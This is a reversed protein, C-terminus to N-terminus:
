KKKLQFYFKYEKSTCLICKPNTIKVRIELEGIDKKRFIDKYNKKIIKPISNINLIDEKVLVNITLRNIEGDTSYSKGFLEKTIEYTPVVSNDILDFKSFNNALDSKTIIFDIFYESISFGTYHENRLSLQLTDLQSNVSDAWIKKAFSMIISDQYLELEPEKFSLDVILYNCNVDTSDYDSCKPCYNKPYNSWSWLKYTSRLSKILYTGSTTCPNYNFKENMLKRQIYGFFLVPILLGIVLSMIVLKNMKYDTKLSLKKM